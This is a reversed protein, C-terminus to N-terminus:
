NQPSSRGLSMGLALRDGLKFALGWTAWVYDSGRYPFGVGEADPGGWPPQVLDIRFATALGFPLPTAASFAHGCGVKRADDPCDVWTWRVEGGPLWALNAPNLVVADGTDTSAVSQGPSAVHEASTPLPDAAANSASTITLAISALSAFSAGGIASAAHTLRM